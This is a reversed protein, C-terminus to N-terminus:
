PNLQVVGFVTGPINPPTATTSIANTTIDFIDVAGGQVVYIVNRGAVPALGTVDGTPRTALLLIPSVALTTTDFITLCGQRQNQGNVAGLTCGTSGIYLKSNSTLSMLSHRGDAIHIPTGASLGVANVVQLTGTNLGTAPSGAIFATTGNLLGVTAGSLALPTSLTSAGANTLITGIVGAQTGGCEVGCNLLLFHNDDIAFVGSAPHDIGANTITVPATPSPLIAVFNNTLTDNFALVTTGAPGLVLRQVGAVTVTGTFVATATNISQVTGNNEAVWATKGDPTLAIDVPLAPLTVSFRITETANDFITVLNSLTSQILTTGAASIMKGASPVAITNTVVDTTANVVDVAGTTNDSVLMRPAAPTPTPAGGESRSAGSGTSCGSGLIVLWACLAALGAKLAKNGRTTKIAMNMVKGGIASWPCCFSGQSLHMTKVLYVSGFLCSFLGTGIQSPYFFNM